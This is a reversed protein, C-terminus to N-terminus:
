EELYEAYQRPSEWIRVKWILKGYMKRAEEFLHKAMVETSPNEGPFLYLKRPEVKSLAGVLEEDKSNLLFAHDWHAEIWDGMQKKLQAFDVLFGKENLSEGRLFVEVKFTHGHPSECKGGYHLLRHAADFELEIRNIYM